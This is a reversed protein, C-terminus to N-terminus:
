GGGIPRIIEIVDGENLVHKEHHSRPVIEFNVAVALGERPVSLEKLLADITEATTTTVKGNITIKKMKAGTTM